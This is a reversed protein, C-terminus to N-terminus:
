IYEITTELIYYDQMGGSITHDSGEAMIVLTFDDGSINSENWHLTFDETELSTYQESVIPEGGQELTINVYGANGVLPQQFRCSIDWTMHMTTNVTMNYDHTTMHGMAMASEFIFTENFWTTSPAPESTADPAVDDGGTLTGICGTFIVATLILAIIQKPMTKM